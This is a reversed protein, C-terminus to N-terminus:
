PYDWVFLCVLIFIIMKEKFQTIEKMQVQTEFTDNIKNECLNKCLFSKKWTDKDFVCKVNPKNMLNFVLIALLIQSLNQFM